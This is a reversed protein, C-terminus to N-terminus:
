GVPQRGADIASERGTKEAQEAKERKETEDSKETKELVRAAVKLIAPLGPMGSPSVTGRHASVAPGMPVLHYGDEELLRLNRRVAPRLLANEPISPAILVPAGTCLVTTLALSDAMGAACKAVFNTTAPAAIVLDPWEALEQHPVVGRETPWDPGEVPAQTLAALAHRSVLRDASHTLCVRVSWGYRFRLALVWEPLATVGIAGSSVFLVRGRELTVRPLGRPPAPREASVRTAGEDQPEPM